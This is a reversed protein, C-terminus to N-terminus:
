LLIGGTHECYSWTSHRFCLPWELDSEVKSPEPFLLYKGLLFLLHYVRKMEQVCEFRMIDVMHQMVFSHPRGSSHNSVGHNHISALSSTLTFRIIRVYREDRNRQLCWNPREFYNIANHLVVAHKSARCAFAEFAVNISIWSSHKSM